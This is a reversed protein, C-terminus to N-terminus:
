PRAKASERRNEGFRIGIVEHFKPTCEVTAAECGEAESLAPQFGVLRSLRLTVVSRMNGDQAVDEFKIRYKLDVDFGQEQVESDQRSAAKCGM